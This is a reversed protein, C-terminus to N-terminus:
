TRSNPRESFIRDENAAPNKLEIDEFVDRLDPTSLFLCLREFFDAQKYRKIVEAIKDM